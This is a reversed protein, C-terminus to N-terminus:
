FPNHVKIEKLSIFDAENDTVIVNIGNSLATATLYTDFIRNSTIGYKKILSRAVFYTDYNPYILNLNDTIAEVARLANASSMPSTFKPHTLIRLSEFINQHAVALRDKKEELYKQAPKHKPSSKNIAYIIVNSDILM